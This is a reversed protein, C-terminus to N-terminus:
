DYTISLYTKFSNAGLQDNTWPSSGAIRSRTVSTFRFTEHLRGLGSNPQLPLPFFFIWFEKSDSQNWSQKILMQVCRSTKDCKHECGICIEALKNCITQFRCSSSPVHLSRYSFCLDRNDYSTHGNGNEQSLPAPSRRHWLPSNNMQEDWATLRQSGVAAARTRARTKDLPSQPPCLASTCTKESYKPKGQWDDNWWIRWGWLWRPLYLLGSTVSTGLPGLISVV